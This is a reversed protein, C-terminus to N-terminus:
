ETGARCKLASVNCRNVPVVVTRGGTCVIRICFLFASSRATHLQLICSVLHQQIAYDMAERKGTLFPVGSDVMWLTSSFRSREGTEGREALVSWTRGKRHPALWPSVLGRRSSWVTLTCVRAKWMWNRSIKIRSDSSRHGGFIFPMLCTCM